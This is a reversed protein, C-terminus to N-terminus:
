PHALHQPVRATSARDSRRRRVGTPHRPEGPLSLTHLLVRHERPRMHPVSLACQHHCHTRCWLCFCTLQSLLPPTLCFHSRGSQGLQSWSIKCLLHACQMHGAHAHLSSHAQRLTKAHTCHTRLLLRCALPPTYRIPSVGTEQPSKKKGM